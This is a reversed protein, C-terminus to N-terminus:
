RSIVPQNLYQRLELTLEACNSAATYNESTILKDHFSWVNDDNAIQSNHEDDMAQVTPSENHNTDSKIITDIQRVATAALLPKQFLLKKFRPDLITLMAFLELFEYDNLRRHSEAVLKEKFQKGIESCPNRTGIAITMCRIIPIILSSTVYMHGSCETIVNEVPKLLLVVDRLLDLEEHTLLEVSGKCNITVPYVYEYLELFRNIMHLTLNWRSPVDQIFKLFIAETKGDRKQLRWLEDSAVVSRKSLTIIVKVKAITGQVGTTANIVDPVIHSLTHAFCKIHKSAGFCDIAAKVINRGNETVIAIVNERNIGFSQIGEMLIESLYLVTHSQELPFLGLGLCGSKMGNGSLYHMTVGLHGRNSLDSWMDCTLTLATVHAIERKFICQLHEYKDDMLRTITRRSPVNYRLVASKM